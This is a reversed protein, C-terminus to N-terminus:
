GMCVIATITHGNPGRFGVPSEGLGFHRGCCGKLQHCRCVHWDGGFNVSLFVDRKGGEAFGSHRDVGRDPEGFVIALEIEHGVALQALDFAKAIVRADLDGGAGDPSLDGARLERGRRANQGDIPVAADTARDVGLVPESTQRKQPTVGICIDLDCNGSHLM